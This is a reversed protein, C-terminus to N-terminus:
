RSAHAKIMAEAALKGSSFAFQLNFGGTDGDVDLIEGAFYLGSAIRSGMTKPNVESLSVGAAPRWQRRTDASNRSASRCPHSGARFANGAIRPRAPRHGNCPRRGCVSLASLALRESLGLSCVFAKVTRSGANDSAALIASEVEGETMVGTLRLLIEDGARALRSSDLIGPGSLGKHTFLVDGHARAVERGDRVIAIDADKLSIGACEAFAYDEVVLPRLRPRRKRM